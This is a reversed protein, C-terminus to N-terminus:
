KVTCDTAGQTVATANNNVDTDTTGDDYTWAAQFDWDGDGPACNAAILHFVKKRDGKKGNTYKKQIQANFLVLAGTDAAVDPADTVNLQSGYDPGNPSDRVEGLVVTTDVLANDAHLIITPNNGEFGGTPVQASDQDGAESQEGNFATVTLETETNEQPFGAFRAIAHGTGVLSKQCLGVAEDTTGTAFAAVTPDCKDLFKNAKYKMEAPFDIRVVEAPFAPVVPSNDLDYTTVQTFLSAKKKQDSKQLSPSIHNWLQSVQDTVGDANASTTVGLALAATLSAALSKRPIRM